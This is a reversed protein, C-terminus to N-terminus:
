VIKFFKLTLCCLFLIFIWCVESFLSFPWMEGRQFLLSNLDLCFESKKEWKMWATSVHDYRLSCCCHSYRMSYHRHAILRRTCTDPERNHGHTYISITMACGDFIPIRCLDVIEIDTKHTGLWVSSACQGAYPVCAYFCHLWTSLLLRLQLRWLLQLWWCWVRLPFSTRCNYLMQFLNTILRDIVTGFLCVSWVCVCLCFYTWFEFLKRNCAICGRRKHWNWGIQSSGSIFTHVNYM